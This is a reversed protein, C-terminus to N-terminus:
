GAPGFVLVMSLLSDNVVFLVQWSSLGPGLEAGVFGCVFCSFLFWAVLGYFLFPVAGDLLRRCFVAFSKSWINFSAASARNRGILAFRRGSIWISVEWSCHFLDVSTILM